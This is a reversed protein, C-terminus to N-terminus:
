IKWEFVPNDRDVHGNVAKCGFYKEILTKLENAAKEVEKDNFGIFGDIPFFVYNTETTIKGLDSQRWAWRRTRVEHEVVYVVEGPALEEVDSTGM